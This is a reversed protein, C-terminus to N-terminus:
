YAVVFREGGSLAAGTWTLVNTAITFTDVEAGDVWLLVSAPKAPIDDLTFLTQAAAAAIRKVYAAGGVGSTPTGADGLQLVTVQADTSGNGGFTLVTAVPNGPLVVFGGKGLDEVLGSGNIEYTVAETACILLVRQTQLGGVPLSVSGHVASSPVKAEMPGKAGDQGTLTFTTTVPEFPIKGTQGSITLSLTLDAM